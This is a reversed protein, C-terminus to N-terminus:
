YRRSAYYAGLAALPVWLPIKSANPGSGLTLNKSFFSTIGAVAGAANSATQNAANTSGGTTNRPTITTNLGSPSQNSQQQSGNSQGSSPRPGVTTVAGTSSVTYLNGGSADAFVNGAPTYTNTGGASPDQVITNNETQWLVHVGGLDFLDPVFATLTM